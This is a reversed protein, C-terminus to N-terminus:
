AAVARLLRLYGTGFALTRERLAERAVREMEEASAGPPTNWVQEMVQSLGAADDPDFYHGNPPAQEVHTGIRSLVVPKGMSKAEEVSSSWGEFRSPNLVAVANRMLFLVEAYDILGLIRFNQQLGNAEVFARVEDVYATGNVRYDRTNGTCLVQVDTGARKLRDVAQAVVLHNKHAWFQNPLFFYRGQFGHKREVASRDLSNSASADSPQSVFRLVTGREAHGPLAIRKFDEYANDSSLIVLDSQAIVQRQTRTEEDPDLDPFLQPLHLYQFDPIWAIVKFPTKGKCVFWVHSLVDIGHSKLLANALAMSGGVKYLLKHAFWAPTKRELLRTRVVTAYPAFQREIAPPVNSAFFVYPRVSGDNAQALAYLLNRIYNLGGSYEFPADFWFGVRTM